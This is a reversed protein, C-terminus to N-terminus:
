RLRNVGLPHRLAMVLRSLSQLFARLTPSKEAHPMPLRLRGDVAKDAKTM